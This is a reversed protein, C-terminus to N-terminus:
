RGARDHLRESSSKWLRKTRRWDSSCARRELIQNKLVGFFALRDDERSSLEESTVSFKELSVNESSFAHREFDGNGGGFEDNARGEVEV